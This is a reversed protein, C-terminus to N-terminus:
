WNIPQASGESGSEQGTEAKAANPTKTTKTTKTAKTVKAVKGSAEQPAVDDKEGQDDGSDGEEASEAKAAKKAEFEATRKAQYAEVVPKIIDYDSALEWKDFIAKRLHAEELEEVTLTDFNILMAPSELEPVQQGDMLMVAKGLKVYGADNKEVTINLAKGLLLHIGNIGIKDDQTIEKTNTAVAIGYMVSNSAFTWVGGEKKPKAKKMQFGKLKKDYVTNLMARYPKMGLEGYDCMMTPFDLMIAVEQYEREGGYENVNIHWGDDDEWLKLKQPSLAPHNAGYKEIIEEYFADLEAETNFTTQSKEGGGLKVEDKHVGLDIIQSIRAAKLGEQVGENVKAWDVNSGGGGSKDAGQGRVRFGKVEAM